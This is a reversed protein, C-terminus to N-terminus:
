MGLHAEFRLWRITIVTESFQPQQKYLEMLMSFNYKNSGDDTMRHVAYISCLIILDVHRKFLLRMNHEHLMIEVLLQWIKNQYKEHLGLDLCFSTLRMHILRFVKRFLLELSTVGSKANQQQIQSIAHNECSNDGQCYTPRQAVFNLAKRPSSLPNPDNVQQSQDKMEELLQTYLPCDHMWLERELIREEMEKLRKILNWNLLRGDYKICYEIAVCVDFPKVDLCAILQELTLTNIKFCFRIMEICCLMVSRHFKTNNLLESFNLKSGVRAEEGKLMTELIRFYLSISMRWKDECTPSAKVLVALIKQCREKIQETPDVSCRRFFELLTSSPTERESSLITALRQATTTDDQVVQQSHRNPLMRATLPTGMMASDMSGAKALESRLNRIAPTKLVKTRPTLIKRPAAPAGGYFKMSEQKTELAATEAPRILGELFLRGDYRGSQTHIIEDYKKDLVSSNKQIAGINVREFAGILMPANTESNRGAQLFHFLRPVLFEENLMKLFSNEQRILDDVNCGLTQCLAPLVADLHLTWIQEDCSADVQLRNNIKRM